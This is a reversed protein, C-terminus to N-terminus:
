PCSSAVYCWPELIEATPAVCKALATPKGADAGTFDGSIVERCACVDTEEALRRTPPPTPTVTGPSPVVAAPPAPVPAPPQKTSFLVKLHVELAFNDCTSGSFAPTTVAKLTDNDTSTDVAYSNDANGYTYKVVTDVTVPVPNPNTQDGDPYINMNLISSISLDKTCYDEDM